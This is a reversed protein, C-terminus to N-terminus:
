LVEDILEIWHRVPLPTGAQLHQICGVNASVIVDPQTTALNELKRTRLTGAIAPELVSYAGASGCCLNAEPPTSVSFGLERLHAEVGGRLKQGHQLTCPPHFTVRRAADAHIRTKLATVIRPLLESLDQVRAAIQAARPAYGPDDRLAHGYNKLALACASASSVFALVGPEALYPTWADVNRRMNDLGGQPDSLHTRLAGCCATGHAFLVEIGAAALVREAARDIGPLMSPQVCGSLMVVQHPLTQPQLATRTGSGVQSPVKDRLVRPLLPRLLRGLTLAPAFLKSTLGERLLWRQTREGAPRAVREDVLQRGIEVLSGYQVGSPCTTECNLCTLCRDLHQQTSRSVEGRELLQKILYIRGRPGDLEDGLVQYTPCTANCFGCHVCKRILSAAEQAEPRQRYAASLQTQM